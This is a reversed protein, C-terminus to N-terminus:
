VGEECGLSSIIEFQSCGDWPVSWTDPPAGDLLMSDRHARRCDPSSSSLVRSLFRSLFRLFSNILQLVEVVM